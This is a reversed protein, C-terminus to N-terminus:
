DDLEAHQPDEDFVEFELEDAESAKELAEEESDAECRYAMHVTRYVVYKPM